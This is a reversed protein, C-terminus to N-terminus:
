SVPASLLALLPFEAEQQSSLTGEWLGGCPWMLAQSQWTCHLVGGSTTSGLGQRRPCRSLKLGAELRNSAATQRLAERQEDRKRLPSIGVALSFQRLVLPALPQAPTLGM